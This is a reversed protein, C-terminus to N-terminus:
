SGLITAVANKMKGIYATPNTMSNVRIPRLSQVGMTLVFYKAILTM